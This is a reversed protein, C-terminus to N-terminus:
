SSFVKFDHNALMGILGFITGAFGLAFQVEMVFSYTLAQKAKAYVFEVLPFILGNSAAAAFMMIFGLTYEKKSEGMPRDGGSRMALAVAAVTLLVVANISFLTFKHKVLVYASLATFVLQTSMILAGTSVPLRSAGFSLLYNSGGLLLGILVAGVFTSFKMYVLKANEHVETKRRCFYSYLLPILIIPFGAAQLFCALWISSGGKVFYLRAILQSGSSGIVVLTISLVLLIKRKTNSLPTEM